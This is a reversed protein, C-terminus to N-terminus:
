EERQQAGSGFPGRAEAREQADRIAARSRSDGRPDVDVGDAYRVTPAHSDIGYLCGPLATRLASLERLALASSAIPSGFQGHVDGLQGLPDVIEAAIRREVEAGLDHRIVDIRERTYAVIEGEIEALLRKLDSKTNLPARRQEAFIRGDAAREADQEARLAADVDQQQAEGRALAAVAAAVARTAEKHRERAAYEAANAASIQRDAEALPALRRRWAAILKRPDRTHDYGIIAM